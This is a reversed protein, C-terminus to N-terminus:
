GRVKFKVSLGVIVIVLLVTATYIAVSHDLFIDGSSPPIVYNSYRTITVNGTLGNVVVVNNPLLQWGSGAAVAYGKNTVLWEDTHTQRSSNVDLDFTQKGEGVAYYRISEGRGLVNSTRYTFVTINSNEASVKLTGIVRTNNLCLNAFTWTGNELTASSYSGNVNFCISGHLEPINFTDVPTFSGGTQAHIAPTFLLVLVVIAVLGSVATRNAVIM